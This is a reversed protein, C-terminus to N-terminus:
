FLAQLNSSMRGLFLHPEHGRGEFRPEEVTQGLPCPLGSAQGTEPGLGTVPLEYKVGESGIMGKILLILTTDRVRM